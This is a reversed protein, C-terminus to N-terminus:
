QSLEKEIDLLETDLNSVNTSKLDSEISSVADTQVAGIGVSPLYQEVSSRFYYVLFRCRGAYNCYSNGVLRSIKKRSATADYQGYYKNTLPPLPKKTEGM